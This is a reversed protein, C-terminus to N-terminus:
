ANDDGPRSLGQNYEDKVRKNYLKCARKLWKRNSIEKDDEMYAYRGGEVIQITYEKM